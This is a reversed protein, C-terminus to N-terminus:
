FYFHELALLHVTKNSVNECLIIIRHWTSLLDNVAWLHRRNRAASIEQRVLQGDLLACVILVYQFHYSNKPLLLDFSVPQRSDLLAPRLRNKVASMGPQVPTDLPACEMIVSQFILSILPYSM